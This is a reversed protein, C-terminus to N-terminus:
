EHLDYLQGIFQLNITRRVDLLSLNSADEVIQPSDLGQKAKPKGLQHYNITKGCRPIFRIYPTITRGIIRLNL